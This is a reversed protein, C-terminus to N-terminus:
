VRFGGHRRRNVSDMIYLGLALGLILALLVYASLRRWDEAPPAAATWTWWWGTPM